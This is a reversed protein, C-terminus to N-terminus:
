SYFVRAADGLTGTLDSRESSQWHQPHLNQGGFGQLRLYQDLSQSPQGLLSQQQNWPRSLGQDSHPLAGSHGLNGGLVQGRHSSQIEASSRPEYSQSGLLRSPQASEPLSRSAAPSDWGLGSAIGQSYMVQRSRDDLHGFGNVANQRLGLSLHPSRQAQM